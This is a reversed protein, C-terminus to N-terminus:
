NISFTVQINSIYNGPKLIDKEQWTLKFNAMNSLDYYNSQSLPITYNYLNSGLPTNYFNVGSVSSINEIKMTQSDIIYGDQGQAVNGYEDLLQFFGVELAINLNIDSLEAGTVRISFPTLEWSESLLLIENNTDQSIITGDELPANNFYLQAILDEKPADAVVTASQDPTNITIGSDIYDPANPAVVLDAFLSFSALLSFLFIIQIKKM